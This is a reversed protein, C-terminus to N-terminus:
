SGAGGDSPEEEAKRVMAETVPLQPGVTLEYGRQAIKHAEAATPADLVFVLHERATQMRSIADDRQAELTAIRKCAIELARTTYLGARHERLRGEIQCVIEDRIEEWREGMARRGKVGDAM